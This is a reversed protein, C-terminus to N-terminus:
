DVISLSEIILRDTIPHGRADLISLREMTPQHYLGVELRYGSGPLVQTNISIISATVFPSGSPYSTTPARGGEPESDCGEILQGEANVLHVFVTYNKDIKATARWCLLLVLSDGRKVTTSAFQYRELRIPAAFRIPLEPQSTVMRVDGVRQEQVRGNGDFFFVFSPDHDRLGVCTGQDTSGVLVNRGYQPLFFGQLELSFFPPNILYLLTGDPFQQHKEIIPALNSVSEHIIKSFNSTEDAIRASSAAIVLALMGAIWIRAKAFVLTRSVLWGFGIAPFVFSLYLYRPLVFYFPVHPLTTVFAGIMLFTAVHNRRILSAYVCCLIVVLLWVLGLVGDLRWPLVLTQLYVLLNEIIPNNLSYQGSTYPSELHHMARIPLYILMVLAFPSYRRLFGSPTRTRRVFWLDLLILLIPLTIGTEKSLTACLSLVLVLVYLRLTPKNLYSLWFDTALLCLFAGLADPTAPWQIALSYHTELLLMVPDNTTPAPFNCVTCTAFLLTAVLAIAPPKATRRILRYLLLCVALHLIVNLLHYGLPNSGFLQYALKWQLARFPRFEPTPFSPFLHQILGYRGAWNLQECDDLFFGLQLAPQYVILIVAAIVFMGCLLIKSRTAQYRPNM